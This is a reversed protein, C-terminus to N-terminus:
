NDRCFVKSCLTEFIIQFISRKELNQQKVSFFSNDIIGLNSFKSEQPCLKIGAGSAFCSVM